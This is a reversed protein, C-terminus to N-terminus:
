FNAKPFLTNGLNRFFERSKKQRAARRDAANQKAQARVEPSPNALGMPDPGKTKAAGTRLPRSKPITTPAAAPKPMFKAMAARTNPGMIGDAKIDAGKAILSKQLAMTKDFDKTNAATAKVKARKAVTTGPMATQTRRVDAFPRPAANTKDIAAASPKPADDPRGTFAAPKKTAAKKAAPKAQAAQAKQINAAEVFLRVLYGLLGDIGEGIAIHEAPIGHKQALAQKLEFNEPDGYQWVSSAEAQMAEIALPSPGFVSENAGIRALFAREHIRELAEPGVFPISAPLCDILPTFPPLVAKKM